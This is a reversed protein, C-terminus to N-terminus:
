RKIIKIKSSEDFQGCLKIILVRTKNHNLCVDSLSAPTFHLTHWMWGM